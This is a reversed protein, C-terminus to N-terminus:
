WDTLAPMSFVKGDYNLIVHQAEIRQIQVKIDIIDGEVMRVDNVRVWREKPNSAYMHATFAMVPLETLVWDPLQDIRPVDSASNTLITRTEVGTEPRSDVDKVASEFRKLLDSSISPVESEATQAATQSVKPQIIMSKKAVYKKSQLEDASNDQQPAVNSDVQTKPAQRKDAMPMLQLNAVDDQNTPLEFPTKPMNDLDDIANKFRKLLDRSIPPAEPEATQAPTLSMKPESLTPQKAVSNKSPQEDESNDQQPAMNSDVQTEPVQTRDEMPMLPPNAVDDQNAIQNSATPQEILIPTKIIVVSDNLPLWQDYTAGLWGIGLGCILVLAARTLRKGYYHWHSPIQSVSPLFLSRNLEESLAGDIIHDSRKTSQLLQQTLSKKAVPREIEVKQAPDIEVQQVGMECLGSVMEQSTVLGSKRIKIPGNQKTIKVIVMGPLLDKIPVLSDM